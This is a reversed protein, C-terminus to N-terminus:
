RNRLASFIIEEAIFSDIAGSARLAPRDTETNVTRAM